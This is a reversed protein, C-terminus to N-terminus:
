FYFEPKKLLKKQAINIDDMSIPFRM